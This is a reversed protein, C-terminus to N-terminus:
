RVVIPITAFVGAVRDSRYRIEYDGDVAPASITLPSGETTYAYDGYAAEDAGVEVITIYDGPGNPGTWTVEFDTGSEVEAPAELTIVLPLVTITPAALTTTRFGHVYRIEYEGEEMGAVLTGTPGDATNFYSFYTGEPSGAPVVTIYDGPGDPGSWTVDFETGAAVEVPSEITVEYPTVVIPASAVTATTAGDIYRIEYDGEELGAVLEGTPGAATNFYSFYTGEATGAPVITVYDGTNDPGTWRVNFASGAMVSEPAEFTVEGTAATTTAEEGTTTPAATTTAAATTTTTAAEGGGCAALVLAVPVLTSIV